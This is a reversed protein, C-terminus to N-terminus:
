LYLQCCEEACQEMNPSLLNFWTILCYLILFFIICISLRKVIKEHMTFTFRKSSFFIELFSLSSLNCLVYILLLCHELCLSQSDRIDFWVFRVWTAFLDREEEHVSYIYQHMYKKPLSYHNCANFASYFHPSM